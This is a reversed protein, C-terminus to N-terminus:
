SLCDELSFPAPEEEGDETYCSAIYNMVGTYQPSGNVPCYVFDDTIDEFLMEFSGYDDQEYMLDWVRPDSVSPFYGTMPELRYLLMLADKDFCLFEALDAAFEEDDTGNSICLAYLDAMPYLPSGSSASPLLSLYIGDPYYEEWVRIMGSSSIWMGAEGSLKTDGAMVESLGSDYLGDIYSRMDTCIASSSMPDKTYEESLMFSTRQDSNFVSGIYPMLEYADAFPTVEFESDIKNLYDTLEETTPRYSIVGEEPIYASNGVLVMVSSYYPIGAPYGDVYCASLANVSMDSPPFVSDSLHDELSLIYGNTYASALDNVLVIDPIDGEQEWSSLVDPGVGEFSTKTNTVAWPIDLARLYDLNIDAGTQEEPFLDNQKAYYMRVLLDVTDDSFPLALSIDIVSSTETTENSSGSPESSEVPDTYYVEPFEGNGSACSSLLIGAALTLCIFSRRM